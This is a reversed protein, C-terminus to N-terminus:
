GSRVQASLSVAAVAVAVVVVIPRQALLSWAHRAIAACPM